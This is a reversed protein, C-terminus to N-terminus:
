MWCGPDKYFPSGKVAHSLCRLGGRCLTRYFCTQCGEILKDADRLSIFLDCNYIEEMSKEKLNGVNVPMRRCPYVSADPMVAFISDGAKCRYPYGGASHFQLARNMSIDTDSRRFKSTNNKAKAMIRVFEDTDSPSLCADSIFAGSGLPIMRDAWLRSVRQRRCFKALETFDRFNIKTATFSIITRIGADVLNKIAKAVARFNGSGRLQDHKEEMGDLSLQVFSVGTRALFSAVDKDIMTGNSLIGFSFLKAMSSLISIFEFFDKRILPEGGAINIHGKIRKNRNSSLFSIFRELVFFLDSVDPDLANADDRYCHLCHLNCQETIHWQMIIREPHHNM